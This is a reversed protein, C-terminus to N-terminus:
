KVIRYIKITANSFSLKFLEPHKEVWDNELPFQNNKDKLLSYEFFYDINKKRLNAWWIDYDAKGRYNSTEEFNDFKSNDSRYGWVIKSEPFDHLRAPETKNISVYYVNNKFGTGYLPFPVPRGVYAINESITNKNLWEWAKTADPWFGSYKVMKAYRSFENREYDKELLQLTFAFFALCVIFCYFIRRNLKIKRIYKLLFWIIFFLFVSFILSSILEVRKALEGMSVLVSIIFTTIVLKKPVRLIGLVYFAIVSAIGFISYIYRLNPLPLLFRYVMIFLIPLSMFYYHMFGVQERKKAILVALGMFLAPLFFLVTQVGLGESFLIKAIGYDGPRIATRYIRNDIAGKFIQLDFINLNLPYLPNGTMMFNNFYSYGGAGLIFCCGILFLLPGNKIEKKTFCLILFPVFILFVFPLATTKTGLALGAAASFFFTNKLSFDKNLALLYNLAALLFAAVMIDVYAVQLQKFFNPILMFLVVAFFAYRKEVGLKIAIAFVSLASLLFFPLQGLDALFVNRFPLILWLYFLSGNIPYYSPAPDDFVTPPVSLNGNKLWEVAFTFHYNLSDWGFPPNVLNIFLKVVLFSIIVAICFIELKGLEIRSLLDQFKSILHFDKGPIRNKALLLVFVLFVAHLFLVNRLSILGSIGLIELSVIILLIYVIFWAIFYDSIKRESLFIRCLLGASIAVMSNMLFFTFVAM